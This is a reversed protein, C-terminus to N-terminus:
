MENSQSKVLESVKHITARQHNGRIFIIGLGILLFSMFYDMQISINLIKAIFMGSIVLIFIAGVLVRFNAQSFLYYELFGIGISLFGFPWTKEWGGFFAAVQLAVGSYFITGAFFLIGPYLGKSVYYLFHLYLGPVMFLLFPWFDNYVQKVNLIEGFDILNMAEMLWLFGPVICLFGITKRLTQAM